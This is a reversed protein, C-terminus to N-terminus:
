VTLEVLDNLRPDLICEHNTIFTLLRHQSGFGDLVNLIGSLLPTKSNMMKKREILHDVDEIIACYEQPLRQIAM